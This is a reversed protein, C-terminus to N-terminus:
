VPSPNIIEFPVLTWFASVWYQKSTSIGGSAASLRRFEIGEVALVAYQTSHVATFHIDNWVVHVLQGPADHYDRLAIHASELDDVDVGSRMQFPRGKRGTLLVSIGDTGPREEIETIQQVLHPPGGRQGGVAGLEVFSYNGIKNVPYPV